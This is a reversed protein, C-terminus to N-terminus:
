GDSLGAIAAGPRWRPVKKPAAATTTTRSWSVLCHASDASASPGISRTPESRSLRTNLSRAANQRPPRAAGRSIASTPSRARPRGPRSPRAPRAARAPREPQADDEATREAVEGVPGEAGAVPEEAAADDVHDVELPPRHEVEGVGRQPDPMPTSSSSLERRARPPPSTITRSTTGSAIAPSRTSRITAMTVPTLRVSTASAPRRRRPARRRRRRDRGARRASRPRRRPRPRRARVAGLRRAELRSGSTSTGTTCSSSAGARPRCAPRAPRAGPRRGACRCARARAAPASGPARTADAVIGLPGPMTWRRSLPVEPSRSTARVAALGVVGEDRASDARARAGATGRAPTPCRRRAVRASRRARDAPRRALGGSPRRRAPCPPGCASRPAALAEGLRHHDRLERARELGPAGVLDADVQARDAVGHHAVRAVAAGALRERHGPREQVGLASSSAWGTM